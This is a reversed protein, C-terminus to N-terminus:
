VFLVICSVMEVEAIEVSTDASIEIRKIVGYQVPKGFQIMSGNGLIRQALNLCVISVYECIRHM